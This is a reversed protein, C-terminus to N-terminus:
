KGLHWYIRANFTQRGVAIIEPKGDGDLDAVTLDEVAVGGEDLLQRAWKAGMGDTSKYIRVGCREGPKKSLEDRVGIILEDQGDGDLDACWVAHGWRLQDDIVHRQWLEGEKGPPTYVVVQHGHWPEITAIFKGAKLQGMKIESAGRRARPNEQNGSGLKTKAWKEGKRQLLHVGEYSAILVDSGKGTAAPIPHFNHIVRLSEDLVTMPWRDKLPNKPIALSIIRVPAGDMYNRSATSNKGLLPVVLLEPKGDGDLDAFRIRHVSTEDALLTVQWLDDLSKGRTLLYIPGSAKSSLNQWGAGLAFDVKGDGDVDAAAICVNDPLTQNEVINRRKWTPNEYWIVRKKDVVVLDTKGDGNVDVALVAYGVGLTTEIEQTRFRAIAASPPTEARLASVALLILPVFRRSPM